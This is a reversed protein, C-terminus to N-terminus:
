FAFQLKDLAVSALALAILVQLLRVIPIIDLKEGEERAM